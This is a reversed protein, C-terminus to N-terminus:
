RGRDVGDAACAVAVNTVNAGLRGHGSGDAVTCTQGAPNTKVTM